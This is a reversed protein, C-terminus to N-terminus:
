KLPCLMEEVAKVTSMTHFAKGREAAKERYHVMREPDSLLSRIGEYLAEENNETILGYENHSGLMERMGSVDTTCVPMGVILAEATATSFGESFSSCVFLDCKSMYKYPNMQYGLFTVSDTLALETVLNRLNKEEQGEGLLYLHVPYGESKLHGLIRIMRDHGKVKILKGVQILRFENDRFALQEVPEKGNEVIHDSDITNYMVLTPLSVGFVRKVSDEVLRSVCVIKDFRGYCRLAERVNRFAGASRRLTSQTSHIWCLKVVNKDTCGSIVRASPGELYSIEVDYNEHIFFRHLTEPSFSKMLISNGPISRPFVTKFKVQKNLFKENEGGGFLAMVTIDFKEHDMNNVLNVLVKEAGGQGLDHILFLIKM